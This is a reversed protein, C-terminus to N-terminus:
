TTSAPSHGTVMQVALIHACDVSARCTCSWREGDLDVAYVPGGTRSSTVAAEISSFRPTHAVGPQRSRIDLRGERFIALAKLRLPRSVARAQDLSYVGPAATTM